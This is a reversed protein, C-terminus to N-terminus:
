FEDLLVKCNKVNSTMSIKIGELEVKEKWLGRRIRTVNDFNINVFKGDLVISVKNLTELFLQQLDDEMMGLRFISWRKTGTNVLDISIEDGFFELDFVSTNDLNSTVESCDFDIRKIHRFPHLVLCRLLDNDTEYFKVQFEQKQIRSVSAFLANENKPLFSSLLHRTNRDPTLAKCPCSLMEHPHLFQQLRQYNLRKNFVSNKLDQLEHSALVSSLM